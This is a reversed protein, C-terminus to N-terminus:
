PELTPYTLNSSKSNCKHSMPLHSFTGPSTLTLPLQTPPLLKEGNFLKADNRSKCATTTTM